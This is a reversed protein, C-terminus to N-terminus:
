RLIILYKETTNKAEKDFIGVEGKAALQQKTLRDSQINGKM